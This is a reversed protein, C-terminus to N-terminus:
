FFAMIQYRPHVPDEEWPTDAGLTEMDDFRLMELDHMVEENLDDLTTTFDLDDEMEAEAALALLRETDNIGIDKVTLVRGDPARLELELAEIRDTAATLDHRIGEIDMDERFGCILRSPETMVQMVREGVDTPHFWGMKMHDDSAVYGFDTHGVLRGKSWLTYPMASLTSPAQM